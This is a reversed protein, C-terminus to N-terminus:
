ALQKLKYRRLLKKKEQSIISEIPCEEILKSKIEKEEEDILREVIERAEKEWFWSKYLCWGEVRDYYIPIIKCFRSCICYQNNKNKYLKINM